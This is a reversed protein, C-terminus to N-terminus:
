VLPRVVTHPARPRTELLWAPFRTTAVIGRSPRQRAWWAAFGYVHLPASPGGTGDHEERWMAAAARLREAVPDEDEEDEEDDDARGTRDAFACRLAEIFARESAVRTVPLASVRQHQLEHFAVAFARWVPGSHVPDEVNFLALPPQSLAVPAPTGLLEAAFMASTFWFPHVTASAAVIVDVGRVDVVVDRGTAAVAGAAAFAVLDELADLVAAVHPRVDRARAAAEIHASAREVSLGLLASLPHSRGRVGAWRQTTSDIFRQATEANM